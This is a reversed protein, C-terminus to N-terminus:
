EQKENRGISMIALAEDVLDSLHSAIIVSIAFLQDNTRGALQRCAEPDNKLYDTLVGMAAEGRMLDYEDKKQQAEKKKQELLKRLEREMRTAM